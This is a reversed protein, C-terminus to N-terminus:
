ALQVLLLERLVLLLIRAPQDSKLSASSSDCLTIIHRGGGSRLFPGGHGVISVDDSVDIVSEALSIDGGDKARHVGVGLPSLSVPKRVGACVNAGVRHELADEHPEAALPVAETGLGILHRAGAVGPHPM